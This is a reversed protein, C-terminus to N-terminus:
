VRTPEKLCKQAIEVDDFALKEGRIEQEKEHGKGLILVIDDSCAGHIARTIAEERDHIVKVKAHAAPPIGKKIDAVIESPDENRPNDDTIFILDSYKAALAGMLPRKARDRNGGCGFVSIIRKEAALEKVGAFINQFADPTHAYDVFVHLLQGDGVRQMRGPVGTFQPILSIIDSFLFGNECLAAMAALLNYINHRFPLKTQIRGMKKGRVVLDFETESLSEKLNQARYIGSQIGYTVACSGLDSALQAGYFDDANVIQIKPSKANFFLKRKAEFYHEFTKHYDLHDQTLNTFIATEFYIGDTRKQDLAHSSVESVCYAMGDKLMESLIPILVSQGPTTNNAKVSKTGWQYQVTGILGSRGKTLHNLLFQLLYATTTKGNTGTIGILRISRPDFDHQRLLLEGFAQHSDKVLFVPVPLQWYDKKENEIVIAEAGSSIATHIFQHGDLQPGKLAVFLDGKRVSRSDCSVSRISQDLSGKQNWEYQIGQLFSRLTKM